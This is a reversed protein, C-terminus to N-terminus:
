PHVEGNSSGRHEALADMILGALEIAEADRRTPHPAQMWLLTDHISAFQQGRRPDRLDTVAVPVNLDVVRTVPKRLDVDLRYLGSQPHLRVRARPCDRYHALVESVMSLASAQGRSPTQGPRKEEFFELLRQSARWIGLDIDFASMEGMSLDHVLQGFSSASVHTGRRHQHIVVGHCYPCTLQAECAALPAGLLSLKSIAAVM